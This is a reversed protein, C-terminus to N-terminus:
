NKGRLAEVAKKGFLQETLAYAFAELVCGHELAQDLLDQSFPLSEGSENLFGDVNVVMDQLLEKDSVSDDKLRKRVEKSETTTLLKWTVDVSTTNFKGFDLPEKITVKTRILNKPLLKFGSM